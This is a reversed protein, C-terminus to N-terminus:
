LWGFCWSIVLLELADSLSLGNEPKRERQIPRRAGDICIELMDERDPMTPPFIMYSVPVLTAVICEVLKIVPGPFMRFDTGRRNSFQLGLATSALATYLFYMAIHPSTVRRFLSVRFKSRENFHSGISGLAQHKSGPSVFLSKLCIYSEDPRRDTVFFENVAWSELPNPLCPKCPSIWISMSKLTRACKLGCHGYVLYLNIKQALHTALFLWKVMSLGYGAAKGESPKLTPWMALPLLLAPVLFLLPIYCGLSQIVAAASQFWSMKSLNTDSSFFNFSKIYILM